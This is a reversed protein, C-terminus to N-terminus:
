LRLSPGSDRTKREAASEGRPRSISRAAAGSAPRRVAYMMSCPGGRLLSPEHGFVAAHGYRDVVTPPVPRNRLGAPM